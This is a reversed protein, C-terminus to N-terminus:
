SPQTPALSADPTVAAPPAAAPQPGGLHRLFFDRIRRQGYAGGMSHGTNPLLLFEFDKGARILADVFRLTNEPPVNTDLEGVM